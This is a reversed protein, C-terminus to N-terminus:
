VGSGGEIIVITINDRGGNDLALKLLEDRKEQLAKESSLVKCVVADDVSHTLGDSCLMLLDGAKMEIWPSVYPEIIFDDEPIGLHQTLVNEGAKKSIEEDRFIEAFSAAETHDESLQTLVGERVHYARSDGINWSRFENRDFELYVCTSGMHCKRTDMEKCIAANIVTIVKELDYLPDDGDCLEKTIEAACLSAVDGDREGGMGDFVAAVWREGSTAAADFCFREYDAERIIGRCYLNDQNVTRVIGIDTVGSIKYKM